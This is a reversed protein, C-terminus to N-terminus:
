GTVIFVKGFRVIVSGEATHAGAVISKVDLEIVLPDVVLKVYVYKESKPAVVVNVVGVDTPVVPM